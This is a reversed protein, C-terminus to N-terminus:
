SIYVSLNVVKEFIKAVEEVLFTTDITKQFKSSTSIGKQFKNEQYHLVEIVVRILSGWLLAV